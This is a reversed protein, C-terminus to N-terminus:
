AQGSRDANIGPSLYTRGQLVAEIAVALESTATLKVVFGSAGSQILTAALDADVHLTLFIVKSQLGDAKLRGLADIGNLGPMSIDTVIVDPRLRLATEVLANGDTVAAVIEYRDKLLNVLGELVFGHDDAILVRAPMM